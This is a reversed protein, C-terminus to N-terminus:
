AASRSGGVLDQNDELAYMLQYGIRRRLLAHGLRQRSRRRIGGGTRLRRFQGRLRVFDLLFVDINTRVLVM